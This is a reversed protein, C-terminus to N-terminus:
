GSAVKETPRERYMGGSGSGSCCSIDEQRRFGSYARDENVLDLSRIKKSEDTEIPKGMEKIEDDEDQYPEQYYHDLRSFEARTRNYCEIYDFAEELQEM